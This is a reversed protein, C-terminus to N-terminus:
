LPPQAACCCAEGARSARGPDSLSLTLGHGRGREDRSTGSATGTREDGDIYSPSSRASAPRVALEDAASACAAGLGNGAVLPETAANPRRADAQMVVLCRGSARCRSTRRVRDRDRGGRRPERCPVTSHAPRLPRFRRQLIQHARAAMSCGVSLSSSEHCCAGAAPPTRSCYARRDALIERMVYLHELAGIRGGRSM